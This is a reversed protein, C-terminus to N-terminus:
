DASSLDVANELIGLIENPHRTSFSIERVLGKKKKLSIVLRPYELFNFYARYKGDVFMFHIGAGGYKQLFTPRDLYLEEINDLPISWSFIGFKLKIYGPLLSIILVKYNISYFLFFIAFFSFLVTGFNLKSESMMWFALVVFVITLGIFLAETKTSSLRQEYLQGRKM